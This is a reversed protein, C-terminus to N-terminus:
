VQQDTLCGAAVESEAATVLWDVASVAVEGGAPMVDQCDEDTVSGFLSM